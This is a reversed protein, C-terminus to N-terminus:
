PHPRGTARLRVIADKVLRVRGTSELTKRADDGTLEWTERVPAATSM